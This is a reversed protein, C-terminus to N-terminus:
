GTNVLVVIMQVNDSWLVTTDWGVVTGTFNWDFGGAAAQELKGTAVLVGDQYLRAKYFSTLPTPPLNNLYDGVAFTETLFPGPEQGPGREDVWEFWLKIQRTRTVYCEGDIDSCPVTEAHAVGVATIGFTALALSCGLRRKRLKM